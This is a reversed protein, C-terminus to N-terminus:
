INKELMYQDLLQGNKKVSQKLTAIYKFGIKQAYQKASKYPTLALFTATGYKEKMFEVVQIGWEESNNGRFREFIYIHPIWMVNNLSQLAILGAIEENEKLCFWVGTPNFDELKPSGDYVLEEYLNDTALIDCITVKNTALQITKM